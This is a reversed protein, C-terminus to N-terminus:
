TAALQAVQELSFGPAMSICLARAVRQVLGEKPSLGKGGTSPASTSARASAPMTSWSRSPTPCAVRASTTSPSPDPQCRRCWCHDFVVEQARVREIEPNGRQARSDFDLRAADSDPRLRDLLRRWRGHRDARWPWRDAGPPIGSPVPGERDPEAHDCRASRREHDAPPLGRHVSDCPKATSVSSAAWVPVASSTTSAAAGIPGDLM